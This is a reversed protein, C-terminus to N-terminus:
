FIIQRLDHCYHKSGEMFFNSHGCRSTSIQIESNGTTIDIQPFCLRVDNFGGSSAFCCDKNYQKRHIEQWVDKNEKFQADCVNSCMEKVSKGDQIENLKKLKGSKRNQEGDQVQWFLTGLLRIKVNDSTRVEM